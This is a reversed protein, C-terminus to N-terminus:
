RPPKIEVGHYLRYNGDVSCIIHNGLGPFDRLPRNSYEMMEVSRKPAENSGEIQGKLGFYFCGGLFILNRRSRPDTARTAACPISSVMVMSPVVYTRCVTLPVYRVSKM